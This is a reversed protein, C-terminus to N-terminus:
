YSTGGIVVNDFYGKEGPVNANLTFRLEFNANNDASAPLSYSFPHLDNDDEPDGNNIQKLLNWTIGGDPSWEARM